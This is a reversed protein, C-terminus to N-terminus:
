FRSEFVLITDDKSKPIYYPLADL